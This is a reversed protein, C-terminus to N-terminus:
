RKMRSGRVAKKGRKTTLGKARTTRKTAAKTRSRGGKAPRQSKTARRVPTTTSGGRRARRLNTRKQAPTGRQRATGQRARRGGAPPRQEQPEELYRIVGWHRIVATEFEGVDEFRNETLKGLVEELPVELGDSVIVFRGGAKKRLTNRDTPFPLDRVSEVVARVGAEEREAQM